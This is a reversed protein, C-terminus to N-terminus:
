FPCEKVGWYTQETAIGVRCPGTDLSVLIGFSKGDSAYRYQLGKSKRAPDSPIDSLYGNGVIITRLDDVSNDPFIPFQGKAAAYKKIAIKLLNVDHIRISDPTRSDFHDLAFLTGFFSAVVVATGGVTKFLVSKMATIAM